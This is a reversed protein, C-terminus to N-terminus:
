GVSEWLLIHSLTIRPAECLIFQPRSRPAQDVAAGYLAERARPGPSAAARTACCIASRRIVSVAAMFRSLLFDRKSVARVGSAAKAGTRAKNALCFM